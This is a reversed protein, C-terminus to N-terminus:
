GKSWHITPRTQRWNPREGVSAVGELAIELAIELASEGIVLMIALIYDGDRKDEETAEALMRERHEEEGAGPSRKAAPQALRYVRFAWAVM